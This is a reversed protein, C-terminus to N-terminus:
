AENVEEKVEKGKYTVIVWEYNCLVAKTNVIPLQTVHKIIIPDTRAGEVIIIPKNAVELVIVKPKEQKAVIDSPSRKEVVVSPKDNPMSLKNTSGEAISSTTKTVVSGKISKVESSRIMMVSQSPKKPDGDKHIIKIMNMEDHASLPNQNINPAEPIQVVIQNIDILERIAKKLHWCKEKDHGPTSSCNECSLSYDLNKPLLNPFKSVMPSLEDLQRLRQFLNTYSEGLPTFTKKWQLRKNRFVPKPRFGPSAPNRYTQPPPYGNQPAPYTNQPARSGHWSGSVVMAVDEKNKKEIIGGTGNQIAQSTAKIASYSMIKSSKLGEEVMGGMKMVENFSKGIVSILHGFYTPELAQLFYEVMESEEMLPNVRAAQERWHFGYERFIEGPKKEIKTLSLRDLVIETNYQFHRAFAQALDDWTYWRSHDQHTYWELVAGSLSQSFYAMLLEDKGSAGRMKSCFRRLHAVPDGHRDYLDFKPMKFGVPLQVNPFLCLDTYAVSVQGGLGQMNRLSQELSRLKRFM